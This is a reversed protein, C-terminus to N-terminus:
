EAAEGETRQSPIYVEGAMANEPYTYIGSQEAREAERFSDWFTNDSPRPNAIFLAKRPKRNSNHSGFVRYFEEVDEREGFPKECSKCRLTAKEAELEAVRARLANARDYAVVANIVASTEPFREEIVELLVEIEDHSQRLANAAERDHRRIAREHELHEVLDNALEDAEELRRELEERSVTLREVPCNLATALDSIEAETPPAVQGEPSCGPLRKGHWLEYCRLGGSPWLRCLDQYDGWLERRGMEARLNAAFDAATM